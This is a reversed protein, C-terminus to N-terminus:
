RRVARGGSGPMSRAARVPRGRSRNGKPLADFNCDNLRKEIRTTIETRAAPTAAYWYNYLHETVLQVAAVIDDVNEPKNAEPFMDHLDTLLETHDGERGRLKGTRMKYIKVYNSSAKAQTQSTPIMRAVHSRGTGIAAAVAANGVSRQLALMLEERHPARQVLVAIRSSPMLDERKDDSLQRCRYVM